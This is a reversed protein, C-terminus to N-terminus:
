DDANVFDYILVGNAYGLLMNDHNEDNVLNLMVIYDDLEMTTKAESFDKSTSKFIEKVKEWEKLYKDNGLKAMTAEQVVGEQWVNVTIVSDNAKEIEYHDEDFYQNLVLKASSIYLKVRDEESWVDSMKADDNETEPKEEKAEEKEEKEEEKEVSESSPESEQPEIVKQKEEKKVEEVPSESVTEEIEDTENVAVETQSDTETKAKQGVSFFLASLSLTIVAGAIAAKSFDKNKIHDKNWMLLGIISMVIGVPTAASFFIGVLIIPISLVRIM